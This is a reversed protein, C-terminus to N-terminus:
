FGAPTPQFVCDWSCLLQSNLLWSDCSRRLEWCSTEGERQGPVRDGVAGEHALCPASPSVRLLFSGGPAGVERVGRLRPCGADGCSRNPLARSKSVVDVELLLQSGRAFATKIAEGPM